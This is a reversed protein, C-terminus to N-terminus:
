CGPRSASGSSMTQDAGSWQCGMLNDFFTGDWKNSAWREAFRPESRGLGGDPLEGKWGQCGGHKLWSWMGQAAIRTSTPISLPKDVTAGHTSKKRQKKGRTRQEGHRILRKGGGHGWGTFCGGISLSWVVNWRLRGSFEDQLRVIYFHDM